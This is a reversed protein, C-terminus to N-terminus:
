FRRRNRLLGAQRIGNIYSPNPRLRPNDQGEDRNAAMRALKQQFRMYYSQAESENRNIISFARSAAGYFLVVRDGIPMLPEDLLDDLPPVEIVYDVNLLTNQTDISPHIQTQRYRDTESEADLPTPDFFDSTSYRIPAGEGKPDAAELARFAQPGVAELPKQWRNHWIEMTEKADTPLDFRDRWLKFTGTANSMEQFNVTLTLSTSSTTHTDVTYLQTSDSLSFRFGTFNLGTPAVSLTVNVSGQTVNCTGTVYAAKQVVQITKKLWFWPKFPAVEDLYVENIIRKIKGTALADTSQIGLTERVSSIIDGNTVLVQAM